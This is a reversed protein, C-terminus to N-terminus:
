RRRNKRSTTKKKTIQKIRKRLTIQNREQRTDLLRRRREIVKGKPLGIRKGKVTRHRRFKKSTRKSFGIPVKVRPQQPKGRTPKIRATRSLSTDTVFNRLDKARRKTLPVKNVKILKPRKGKKTRKLPRAFVNFAKQKTSIKKIRRVRGRKFKGPVRPTPKVPVVPPRRPPTRRPPVRKPVVIVRRTKRPTVVRRSEPSKRPVRRVVIRRTTRRRLPTRRPTLKPARARPRARSSRRSLSTKFGTEKKLNRRLKKLESRNIKGAKSKKILRATEPKAKIVEARVIPIRRGNIETFAITKVKKIIEGPALTVEPERSLAGVPKFKGSKKLQFQLLRNAENPTLTKGSKIKNEIDKLSSPLKQIKSKEFILIQPKQTKFTVDGALIDLLSAEKQQGGLRSARLRGRPSGFFSRELLSGAGRTEINIRKDLQILQKKTIRGRDFKNLLSRTRPKLQSENPIPKRVVRKTKLLNIIRDAQASVVTTRRGSIKIQEKLPIGIKKVPTEVIELVVKKGTQKSQVIIKGGKVPAFKPTAKILQTAVKSSIKGALKFASGSGIFLLAETGVFAITETPSVRATRGFEKGGKKFEKLVELTAKPVKTINKPNRILELSGKGLSVIGQGTLIVREGSTTGFLKLNEQPTLKIGREVKTRLRQKELFVRESISKKKPAEQVFFGTRKRLALIDKKRRTTIKTKSTKSVTPKPEPPKVTVSVGGRTVQVPRGGGGGRPRSQPTTTTQTSSRRPPAATGVPVGARTVLVPGSPRSQPASTPKPAPPSRKIIKRVFRKIRKHVM